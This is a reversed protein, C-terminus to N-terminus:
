FHLFILPTIFNVSIKVTNVLDFLRRDSPLVLSYAKENFHCHFLCM